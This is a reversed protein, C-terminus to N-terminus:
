AEKYDDDCKDCKRHLWYNSDADEDGFEAHVLGGCECSVPFGSWCDPCEANGIEHESNGDTSVKFTNMAGM